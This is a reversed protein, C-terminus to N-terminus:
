HPDQAMLLLRRNLQAGEQSPRKRLPPRVNSLFANDSLQLKGDRFRCVVAWGCRGQVEACGVLASSAWVVQLSLLYM